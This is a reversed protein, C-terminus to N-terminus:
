AASELADLVWRRGDYSVSARGGDSARVIFTLRPGRDAPFAAREDRVTDLEVVRFHRDGWRVEAPRGAARDWRVRAEVPRIQVLAM